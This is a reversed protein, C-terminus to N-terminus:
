ATAHRSCCRILNNAAAGYGYPVAMTGTAIPAMPVGGTAAYLGVPNPNLSVNVVRIACQGTALTLTLPNATFDPMVIIQPLFTGTQGNQGAAIVTYPTNNGAFVTGNTNQAFPSAANPLSAYLNYTGSTLSVYGGSSGIMGFGLSATLYTTNAFLTVAGNVESTATAPLMRMSLTVLASSEHHEHFQM